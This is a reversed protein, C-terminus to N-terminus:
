TECTVGSGDPCGQQPNPRSMPEPVAVDAMPGEVISQKALRASRPIRPRANQWKAALAGGLALLDQTAVELLLTKRFSIRGRTRGPRGAIGGRGHHRRDRRPLSRM